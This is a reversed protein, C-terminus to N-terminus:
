LQCKCKGIIPMTQNDGNRNIYSKETLSQRDPSCTVELCIPLYRHLPLHASNTSFYSCHFTNIGKQESIIVPNKVADALVDASMLWRYYVYTCLFLPTGYQYQIIKTYVVPLM